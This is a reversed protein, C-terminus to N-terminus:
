KGDIFRQDYGNVENWINVFLMGQGIADSLGTHDHPPMDKFWHSRKKSMERKSITSFSKSKLASMAYSKIDLAAFSMPSQLVGGFKMIYWHIWMFDYTPYCVMVPKGPLSNLWSIFEPIADIAYKKNKQIYAYAKPQKKWWDMTDPDQVADFLPYLNVEFTNIPVFQNEAYVDFAAAGFNLMSNQGPIPGDAEIDISVFIEKNKM